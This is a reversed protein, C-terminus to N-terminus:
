SPASGGYARLWATREAEEAAREGPTLSDWARDFMAKLQAEEDRARERELLARIYAAKKRSGGAQRELWGDLESPLRVNIQAEKNAM